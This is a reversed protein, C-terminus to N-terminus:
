GPSAPILASGQDGGCDGALDIHQYQNGLGYGCSCFRGLYDFYQLRTTLKLTNADGFITTEM